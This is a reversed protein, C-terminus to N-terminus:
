DEIYDNQLSYQNLQSKTLPIKFTDPNAKYYLVFSGDKSYVPVKDDNEFSSVFYHVGNEKKIRKRSTTTFHPKRWARYMIREERPAVYYDPHDKIDRLIGEKDVYHEGDLTPQGFYYYANRMPEKMEDRIRMDVQQKFGKHKKYLIHNRCKAIVHAFPKNLYKDIIRDYYHYGPCPRYDYRDYYAWYDTERLLHGTCERLQKDQYTNLKNLVGKSYELREAVQPLLDEEIYSNM